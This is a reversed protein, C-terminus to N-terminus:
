ATVDILRGPESSSGPHSSDTATGQMASPSRSPDSPEEDPGPETQNLAARTEAEIRSAQAAVARDQGSPSAPALAARRIQQMKALTARPDGEVSSVDIPVEGGVAYRKGDPGTQYQFSVAGGHVTPEM